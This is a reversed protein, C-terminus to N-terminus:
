GGAEIWGDIKRSEANCRRATEAPNIASTQIAATQAM